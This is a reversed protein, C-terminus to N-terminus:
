STRTLGILGTLVLQKLTHWRFFQHRWAFGILFFLAALEIVWVQPYSYIIDLYVSIMSEATNMPKYQWFTQWGFLPWWFSETHNWMRDAVIHFLFAVTYPVAQRWLLLAFVLATVNFLLSHAVLQSTQAQPLVFIALPKDILDPGMACVALLRYDLQSLNPNNKQLLATVGWTVAVHGPPMM